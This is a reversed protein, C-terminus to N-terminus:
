VYQMACFVGEGAKAVVVESGGRFRQKAFTGVRDAFMPGREGLTESTSKEDLVFAIRCRGWWWGGSFADCIPQLKGVTEITLQQGLVRPDLDEEGRALESESM